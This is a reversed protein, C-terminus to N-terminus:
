FVLGQADKIQEASEGKESGTEPIEQWQQEGSLPFPLTSIEM